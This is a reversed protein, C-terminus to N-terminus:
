TIDLKKPAWPSYGVLSRQGHFKGHCFYKLPNGNGEGLSRGSGSIWVLHRANYASEKSDSGGLFGKPNNVILWNWPVKM